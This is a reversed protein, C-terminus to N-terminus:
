ERALTVPILGRLSNGLFLAGDALDDVTLRAEIAQGSEIMEERLIGPLLGAGLNPTLFTDRRKIFINAITSECIENRENLLIADQIGDPLAARAADYASRETTKIRLFPDSSALRVSSLHVQWAHTPTLDATTIDVKGRADLTLRVRLPAGGGLPALARCVAAPDHPFGLQHATRELRALHRPLRRIGEAPHWGFTEIIKLDQPIPSEM